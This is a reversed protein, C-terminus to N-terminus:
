ANNSGGKIDKVSEVNTLKTRQIKYTKNCNLCKYKYNGNWVVPVKNNCYPCTSIGFVPKNAM